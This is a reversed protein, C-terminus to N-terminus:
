NRTVARSLPPITGAVVKVQRLDICLGVSQSIPPADRQLQLAAHPPESLRVLAHGPRLEQDAVASMRDNPSNGVVGAIAEFNNFHMWEVKDRGTRPATDHDLADVAGNGFRRHFLLSAICRYRYLLGM